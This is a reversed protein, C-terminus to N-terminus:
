GVGPGTSWQRPYFLVFGVAAVAFVTALVFWVPQFASNAADDLGGAIAIVVAIGFAGGVTRATLSTGNAVGYRRQDIGVLSASTLMSWSFALGAGYSIAFPFYAVWYNPEQDLLVAMAFLSAACAVMGGVIGARLHGRDAVTGAFRSILFITIPSPTVALGAELPSWGWVTQMYVPAAFWFASVGMNFVLLSSSAVSFRRSEFLSLDLLPEPHVRSRHVVVAILAPSLLFCALVRWDTWGWESGQLLGLTVLAVALTGLPVGVLDIKSDSREGKNEVLTRRGVVVIVLGIPVNVIFIWRWSSVEIIGAGIPPGAAGAISAVAAWIGVVVSRRTVPFLPLVLSLSTPILCAGGISQVLRFGILWGPTPALGCGLSALTFVIVGIFFIRRRGYIDALRGALLLLAASGIAFGTIIWALTSRPTDPFSLEISPFAVNLVSSQLIAMAQGASTLYLALWAARPVPVHAASASRAPSQSAEVSLAHGVSRPPACRAM